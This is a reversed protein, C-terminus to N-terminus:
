AHYWGLQCLAGASLAVLSALAAANPKSLTPAPATCSAPKYLMAPLEPRQRWSLPALPASGPRDMEAQLVGCPLAFEHTDPCDQSVRACMYHVVLLGQVSGEALPTTGIMCLLCCVQATNFTLGCFACCLQPLLGMGVCIHLCLLGAALSGRRAQPERPTAKQCRQHSSSRASTPLQLNEQGHPSRLQRRAERLATRRAAAPLQREQRARSRGSSRWPSRAWRRMCQAGTFAQRTAPLFLTSTDCGSPLGRSMGFRCKRNGHQRAHM